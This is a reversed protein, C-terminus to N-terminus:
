VPTRKGTPSPAGRGPKSTTAGSTTGSRACYRFACLRVSPSDILSQLKGLPGPYLQVVSRVSILGLETNRDDSQVCLILRSRDHAGDSWRGRLLGVCVSQAWFHGWPLPRCAASGLRLRAPLSGARKNPEWSGM